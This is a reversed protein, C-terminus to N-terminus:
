SPNIYLKSILLLFFILYFSLHLFLLNPIEKLITSFKKRKKDFNITKCINTFRIIKDLRAFGRNSKCVPSQRRTETALNAVEHPSQQRPIVMERPANGVNSRRSADARDRGSSGLAGAHWFAKADKETRQEVALHGSCDCSIRDGAGHLHKVRPGAVHDRSEAAGSYPGHRGVHIKRPREARGPHRAEGAGQHVVALQDCRRHDGVCVQNHCCHGVM